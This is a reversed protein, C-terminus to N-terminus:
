SELWYDATLLEPLFVQVEPAGTTLGAFLQYKASVELQETSLGSKAL